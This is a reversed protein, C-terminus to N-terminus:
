VDGGDESLLGRAQAIVRQFDPALVSRTAEQLPIWRRRRKHQERWEIEGVCNAVYFDVARRQGSLDDWTLEGVHAGIEVEVGAEERTERAAAAEPLEGPKVKGQPLIWHEGASSTVALIELGSDTQRYTVTGAKRADSM